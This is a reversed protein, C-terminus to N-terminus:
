PIPDHFPAPRWVRCRNPSARVVRPYSPRGRPGASGAAAWCTSTSTCAGGPRRRPWLQGGRPLRGRARAPRRAQRMVVFLHGVLPEDEEALDDVTPIEKRPIVVLHTPAQPNIDEFALCLDDQYVIKAPIEGDIIKKFVTKEAM